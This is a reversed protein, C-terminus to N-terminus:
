GPPAHSQEIVLTLVAGGGVRPELRWNAGALSDYLASGLGSQGSAPGTGNDKATVKLSSGSKSIQIGMETASGHRWANGVAEDIVQAIAELTELSLKQTAARSFNVQLDVFGMWSQKARAVVQELSVVDREDSAGDGGLLMAELEDLESSLDLAEATSGSSLRLAIALMKNQVQSHLYQALKRNQLLKRGLAVKVENTTANALAAFGEVVKSRIELGAGIVGVVISVQLMLLAGTVVRYENNLLDGPEILQFTLFDTLLSISFVALILRIAGAATSQLEFRSAVWFVAATLVWVLVAIAIADVLGLMIIRTPMFFAIFLAPILVPNLVHKRLALRLVQPVEYEEVPSLNASWIRQSAPRVVEEVTKRLRQGLLQRMESDGDAEAIRLASLIPELATRLKAIEARSSSSITAKNSQLEARVQELLLAEREARFQFLASTLTAALPITFAAVSTAQLMRSIVDAELDVLDPRLFWYSFWTFFGKLAGFGVVAIAVATPKVRETSRKRYLTRDLLIYFAACVAFGVLNALVLALVDVELHLETASIVSFLVASPISIGLAIPNLSHPGTLDDLVRRVSPM